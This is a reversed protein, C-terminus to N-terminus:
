CVILAAKIRLNFSNKSTHRTEPGTWKIIRRLQCYALLYLPSNIPAIMPPIRPIIIEYLSATYKKNVFLSENEEIKNNLTNPNTSEM